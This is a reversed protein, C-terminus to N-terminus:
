EIVFKYGIFRSFGVAGQSFNPLTNFIVFKPTPPTVPIERTVFYFFMMRPIAMLSLHVYMVLVTVWRLYGLMFYMPIQKPLLPM